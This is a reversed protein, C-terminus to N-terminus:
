RKSITESLEVLPDATFALHNTTIFPVILHKSLIEVFTQIGPLMNGMEM